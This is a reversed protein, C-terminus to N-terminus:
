WDVFTGIGSLVLPHNQPLIKAPAYIPDAISWNDPATKSYTDSLNKAVSFGSLVAGISCGVVIAHFEENELAVGTKAAIEALPASFIQIGEQTEQM